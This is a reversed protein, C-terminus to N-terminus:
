CGDAHHVALKPSLAHMDMVRCPHLHCCKSAMCGPSSCPWTNMLARAMPIHCSQRPTVPLLYYEGKGLGLGTLATLFSTSRPTLTAPSHLVWFPTMVPQPHHYANSATMPQTPARVGDWCSTHWAVELAGVHV